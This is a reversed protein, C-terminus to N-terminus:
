PSASDRSHQNRILTNVHELNKRAVPNGPNIRLAQKYQKSAETLKGQELFVSGLNIRAALYDPNVRLAHRFHVEADAFNGERLLLLGLNYQAQNLDRNVEVARQLHPRAERLNGESALIRGLQHHPDYYYPKISIAKRFSRKADDIKGAAQQLKGMDCYAVACDPDVEIARHLYEAAKDLDGQQKHISSVACFVKTSRPNIRLAESFLPKAEALNKEELHEGGYFLADQYRTQKAVAARLQQKASENVPDIRLTDRYTAIAAKLRHTNELERAKELKAATLTERIRDAQQEAEPGKQQSLWDLLVENTTDAYVGIKHNHRWHLTLYDENDTHFLINAAPEKPMHCRICQDRFRESLEPRKPCQDANHCGLCSKKISAANDPGEPIHPDHCTVCTLNDSSQFCTSQRLHHIQNATHNDEPYSKLHPRFYENLPEGPRYSFTPKLHNGEQGHCQGCVDLLRERSLERPDVIHKGDFEDPHLLHYEVHDAAPGHCRECTVGLHMERRDYENRTGRIPRFYTNHCELCEDSTPRSFNIFGDRYGPANGWRKLPNLYVMPLQYLQDDQWYHYVEDVTGAGYVLGIQKTHHQEGQPTVAVATQFFEGASATMVFWLKPDRTRFVNAQPSFDAVMDGAKPLRCTRFHKTDSFEEVRDRHCQRCADAGVYPSDTLSVQQTEPQQPSSQGSQGANEPVVKTRVFMLYAAVVLCVLLASVIVLTTRGGRRLFHSKERNRNYTSNKRRM